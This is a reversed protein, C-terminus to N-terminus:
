EYIPIPFGKLGYDKAYYKVGNVTKTARYIYRVPKRGDLEENIDLM